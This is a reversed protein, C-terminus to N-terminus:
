YLITVKITYQMHIIYKSWKLELDHSFEYLIIHSFSFYSFFTVRSNLLYHYYSCSTVLTLVIPCMIENLFSVTIILMYYSYSVSLILKLEINFSYM